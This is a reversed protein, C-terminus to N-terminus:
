KIRNISKNLGKFSKELASDVEELSGYYKGSMIYGTGSKELLNGKHNIFNEAILDGFAKGFDIFSNYKNKSQKM